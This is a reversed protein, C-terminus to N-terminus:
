TEKERRLLRGNYSIGEFTDGESLDSVETSDIYHTEFNKTNMVQALIGGQEFNILLFQEFDKELIQPESAIFSKIPLKVKIKKKFDWYEVKSNYGLIKILQQKIIVIDGPNFEPLTILLVPKRPYEM